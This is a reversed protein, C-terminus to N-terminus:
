NVPTRPVEAGRRRGSTRDFGWHVVCSYPEIIRCINEQLLMDYLAHLHTSIIPDAGLHESHKKLAM